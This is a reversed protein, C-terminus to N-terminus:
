ANLMRSVNGIIQIHVFKLLNACMLIVYIWHIRVQYHILNLCKVSVVINVWRGENLSSLEDWTIYMSHM